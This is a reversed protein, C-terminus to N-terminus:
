VMALGGNVSLVQGTIYDSRPSALFLVADAIESPKGFRRFPIARMFAERHKEPVRELLPTDTPGPCVCNVNIRHRAMERALAKTFAVVGGKAGSYVAEGSSGVRAADSAVNVVKGSGREIMGPLFAKVVRLSGTYNIDIVREWYDEGGEMFPEIKGWGAVNAVIDLAGDISKALAAVSAPDTVDLPRYEAAYGKGRLDAAAAEGGAKDIDALYVKGGAEAFAFAVAKGIGSAAGTVVASKGDLKM